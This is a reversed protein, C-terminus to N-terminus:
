MLCLVGTCQVDWILCDGWTNYMGSLVTVKCMTYGLYSMVGCLTYGLYSRSPICTKMYKLPLCVQFPESFAKSVLDHDRMFDHSNKHHWLM